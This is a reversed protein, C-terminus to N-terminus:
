RGPTLRERKRKPKAALQQGQLYVAMSEYRFYGNESPADGNFEIGYVFGAYQGTFNEIDDFEVVFSQPMRDLRDSFVGYHSHMCRDGAVWLVREDKHLPGVDRKMIIVAVPTVGAQEYYGSNQLSRCADMALAFHKDPQIRVLSEQYGM